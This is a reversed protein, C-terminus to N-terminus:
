DDKEEVTTAIVEPILPTVMLYGDVIKQANEVMEPTVKYLTVESKNKIIEGYIGRAIKEEYIPPVTVLSTDSSRYTISYYIKNSPM